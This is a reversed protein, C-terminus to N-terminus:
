VCIVSRYREGNDYPLGDLWMELLQGSGEIRLEYGGVYSERWRSSYRGPEAYVPVGRFTGQSIV